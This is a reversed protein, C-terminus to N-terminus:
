RERTGGREVANNFHRGRLEPPRTNTNDQATNAAPAEGTPRYVYSDRARVVLNPRKVRVKIQRREQAQSQRSPHYGLQYQQRLEDAINTFAEELFRIDDANYLRGGTEDALGRLYEGAREYEERSTGAGGGGGGNGVTIGGGGLIVGVIDGWGGRRRAPYPSRG